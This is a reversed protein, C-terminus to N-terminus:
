LCSRPPALDLGALRGETRPMDSVESATARRDSPQVLGGVSSGKRFRKVPALWLDVGPGACLFQGTSGSLLSQRWESDRLLRYSPRLGRISSAFPV